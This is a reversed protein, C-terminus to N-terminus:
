LPKIIDDAILHLECLGYEEELVPKDGVSLTVGDADYGYVNIEIEADLPLLLLARILDKNTVKGM